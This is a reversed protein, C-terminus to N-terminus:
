ASRRKRDRMRRRLHRAGFDTTSRRGTRVYWVIGLVAAGLEVVEDIEEGTLAVVGSRGELARGILARDRGRDRVVGSTGMWGLEDSFESPM